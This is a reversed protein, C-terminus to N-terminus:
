LWWQRFTFAGMPLQGNGVVGNVGNGIADLWPQFGWVIYGGSDWLDQQIEAWQEKALSPDLEAEAAMLKDQFGPQQWATENWVGGPVLAQQSWTPLPVPNWNTMFFPTNMYADSWYADSPRKDVTINVGAEKAQEAFVTASEVWGGVVSATTLPFSMGDAGAAKLLSKAKEVDPEREALQDNYYPLGKMLLDNGVEGYDGSVNQVIAQRDVLLRMAQRVRVDKFAGQNTAMVFPSTIPGKGVLIDAQGSATVQKALNADVGDTAHFQGGYVGQLRANLDAVSRIELEDVYPQGHRWYDPNAKFASSQGPVFSQLVFPGTGVPNKFNTTGDKIIVAFFDIFLVPVSAFPRELPVRLTRADLKKAANLKFNRFSGAGASVSKPGAIRNMTFLLDDVTLPSGDHWVVGDRLRFTWETADGNPEISEALELEPELKENLRVLRDWINLGRSVDALAIFLAPDLTEATGGSSIGIVLRGGRKPKASTASTAASEGSGGCAAALSGLATISAGTLAARQVFERRNLLDRIEDM